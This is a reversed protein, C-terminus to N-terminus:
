KTCPWSPKYPLSEFELDVMPVHPKSEFSNSNKLQLHCLNDVNHSWEQCKLFSVNLGLGMINAIM